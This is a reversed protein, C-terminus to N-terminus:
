NLGGFLWFAAELWSEVYSQLWARAPCGHGQCCLYGGLGPFASCEEVMVPQPSYIPGAKLCIGALAEAM